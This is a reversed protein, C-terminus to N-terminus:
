LGNGPNGNGTVRPIPRAEGPPQGGPPDGVWTALKAAILDLDIPKTLIDDVGAALAAERQEPLVGATLAIIPLSVLGLEERIKRTATFGDMVPMQLDMLVLDCGAPHARLFDLAEAGDQAQIVRAGEFNLAQTMVDRHEACDDTVLFRRGTLPPSAGTGLPAGNTFAPEATEPRELPLDFWFTSGKGLESTAGIRGGMLEVLRKCIALGLGSGRFRRTNGVEGQTFPKFLDDLAEPAIGIGTDQVVFRLRTERPTSALVQCRVRVTGRASFKIANGILNTLVQELRLGDGKLMGLPPIPNEVDLDLGEARALSTFLDRLKALLQELDFARAEIPLHGAEIKALDLIDNIIGMLSQGAEQIRGLMSRQHHSLPERNIMQALGLISYLPTRIEHSMRALFETKAANAQEALLRAQRMEAEGRKQHSIDRTIGLIEIFTGDRRKLTSAMVETWVTSGNKHWQELEMRMSDPVTGHHCQESFWAFREAVLALSAPTFTAEWSQSLVEAPTYGRLKEVSPSVYTFRGTLDMTWIVDSANEAILRHREESLRLREETEKRWSIDEHTGSIRLPRGQEDRNVVRGRNLIWRYGGDAARLRFEIELLPIQGALHERLSHGASDLDEPHMLRRCTEETGEDIDTLRYGLMEAWYENRQIRGSVLDWDWTGLRAGELVFKLSQESERLATIAAQLEATRALVRQELEASLERLRQESARLQAEAERKRSIDRAVVVAGTILGRDDHVPAYSYSGIWEDGTDTRRLRYEQCTAGQGRLARSVPWQDVSLRTGDLTFVEILAPYDRLYQSVASRSPFRHFHAAAENYFAFNGRTDAIFLADNVSALIAELNGKIALLDEETRRHRAIEAELAVTRERVRQELSATLEQVQREAQKQETIDEILTLYQTPEDGEGAMMSSTMKVWVATGDPRLYRKEAKYVDIEGASLRAAGLLNAALDEPHTISMWDRGELEALSRGVITAFCPNARLILGTAPSVLLIGIPAQDFLLRFRSERRRDPPHDLKLDPHPDPGHDPSPAGPPHPPEPTPPLPSAIM